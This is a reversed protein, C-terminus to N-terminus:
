SNKIEERVQMLIKGLKNHGVISKCQTCQCNGWYNDHWWNGEVLKEYGTALLKERLEPNKFKERVCELMVSDKIQEWDPRLCVQRGLGKAGGPTTASAIKQRVDASLSKAAQFAHEVTPYNIGEFRVPSEYFNSLFANEEKFYLIM